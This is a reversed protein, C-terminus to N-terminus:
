RNEKNSNYPGESPPFYHGHLKDCSIHRRTKTDYHYISDKSNCVGGCIECVFAIM